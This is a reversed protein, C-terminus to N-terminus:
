QERERFALFVQPVDVSKMGLIRRALVESLDELAV